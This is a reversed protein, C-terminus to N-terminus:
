TYEWGKEARYLRSISEDRAVEYSAYNYDWEKGVRDLRYTYEYEKGARHLM